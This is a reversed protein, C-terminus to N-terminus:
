KELRGRIFSLDERILGIDNKLLNVDKKLLGVDSKIMGVDKKMMAFGYRTKEEIRTLRREFNWMQVLVFGAVVSYIIVEAPSDGLIFWFVLVVFVIAFIWSMIDLFRIKM